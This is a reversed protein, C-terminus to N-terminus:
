SNRDVENPVEKFAFNEFREIFEPDTVRLDM